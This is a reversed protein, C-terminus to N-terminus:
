SRTENLTAKLYVFVGVVSVLALVPYILLLDVRINCEGTCLIRLKMGLEYPVYALWGLAPTLIVPSRRLFYLVAFVAAPVLALFPRAIFVGLLNQFDM